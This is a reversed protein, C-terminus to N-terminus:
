EPTWSREDDANVLANAIQVLEGKRFPRECVHSIDEPEDDDEGDNEEREEKPTVDVEPDVAEVGAATALAGRLRATDPSMPTGIRDPSVFFEGTLYAHASNMTRKQLNNSHSENTGVIYGIRKVVEWVRMESFENSVLFRPKELGAPTM